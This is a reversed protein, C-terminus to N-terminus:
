AIAAAVPAGRDPGIVIGAGTSLYSDRQLRLSSPARQTVIGDVAIPELRLGAGRGRLL